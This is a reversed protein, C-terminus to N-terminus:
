RKRSVALGDGVPIITTIYDNHGMLFSNFEKMKRALSRFRRQDVTETAVYGRFLVNDSYICGRDNLMSGYMNFFKLYQGKAADIFIADYPGQEKVKEVLELADGELINIRGDKGSAQIYKRAQEARNPDIEITVIEADPLAESMRLASYGIATGIELIKVPNQMRMFQLMVDIATQEMIPVHEKEALSEMEQFLENRSPLLSEIYQSISQNM